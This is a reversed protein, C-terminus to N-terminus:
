KYKKYILDNKIKNKVNRIDSKVDINYLDDKTEFVKLKFGNDLVRLIDISEIIENQSMGFKYYKKLFSGSLGYLCILKYYNILKKYKSRSPIPERSIYHVFNNKGCVVKVRNINNIEKKDKIKSIVSLMDFDKNNKDLYKFMKDITKPNVLPEDGQVVIINSNFLKEKKVAEFIRDMCMEHSHSTMVVNAKFKKFYNKIKIDPTAIYVDDVKKSFLSRKWTHYIMPFGLLDVFPKNPFRSSSLRVPIVVINKIYGEM